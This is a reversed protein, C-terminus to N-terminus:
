RRFLRAWFGRKKPVPPRLMDILPQFSSLMAIGFQYVLFLMPNAPGGDLFKIGRDEFRWDVLLKEKDTLSVSFHVGGHKHAAADIVEHVTFTHGELLLCESNLFKDISGKPAADTFGRIITGGRGDSVPIDHHPFMLKVRSRRNALVYLPTGDLILKRVLSSLLLLDYSTCNTIRAKVDDCTELFMVEERELTM